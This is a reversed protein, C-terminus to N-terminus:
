KALAKWKDASQAPRSLMATINDAESCKRTNPWERSAAQGATWDALHQLVISSGRAARTRQEAQRM